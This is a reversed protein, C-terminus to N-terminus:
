GQVFRRVTEVLHIACCRGPHCHPASPLPLGCIYANARHQAIGHHGASRPASGWRSHCLLRHVVASSAATRRWRTQLSAKQWGVLRGARHALGRGGYRSYVVCSDIVPGIAWDNLTPM